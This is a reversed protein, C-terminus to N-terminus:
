KTWSLMLEYGNTRNGYEIRELKWGASSWSKRRKIAQMLSAPPNPFVEHVAKEFLEMVEDKYYRPAYLEASLELKHIENRDTSEFWCSVENELLADVPFDRILIAIWRGDESRSPGWGRGSLSDPVGIYNLKRVLERPGGTMNPTSLSTPTESTEVAPTSACGTLLMTSCLAVVLRTLMSRNMTRSKM